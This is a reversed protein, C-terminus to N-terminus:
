SSADKALRLSKKLAFMRENSQAERDSPSLVPGPYKPAIYSLVLALARAHADEGVFREIVEGYEEDEATHANTVKVVWVEDVGYGFIHTIETRQYSETSM